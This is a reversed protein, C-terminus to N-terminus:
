GFLSPLGGLGPPGQEKLKKQADTYASKVLLELGEIDEKDVCDPQIRISKMEGEGTLVISVLGGGATGTVEMTSMQTQLQSFQQQMLKAEKKKRAFGSGM